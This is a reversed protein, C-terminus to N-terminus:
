SSTPTTREYMTRTWKTRTRLITSLLANTVPVVSAAKEDEKLFSDRYLSNSLFGCFLPDVPSLVSYCRTRSARVGSIAWAALQHCLRQQFQALRNLLYAMTKCSASDEQPSRRCCQSITM